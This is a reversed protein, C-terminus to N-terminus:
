DKWIFSLLRHTLKGQSRRYSPLNNTKFTCIESLSVSTVGLQHLQWRAYGGCDFHISTGYVRFFRESQPDKELFNAQFSQSVRYHDVGIHPGIWAIINSPHAPLLNITKAIIASFLGRWGAHIAAVASGAHDTLFVPVCDATAVCMALGSQETVCADGRRCFGPNKVHICHNSHTQILHQSRVSGLQLAINRRMLRAAKPHFDSRLYSSGPSAPAILSLTKINPPAPWQATRTSPNPLLIDSNMMCPPRYEDPNIIIQLSVFLLHAVFIAPLVLRWHNLTLKCICSTIVHHVIQYMAAINVVIFVINESM